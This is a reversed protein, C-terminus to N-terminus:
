LTDPDNWVVKELNYYIIGILTESNLWIKVLIM